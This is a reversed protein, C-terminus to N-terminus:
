KTRALRINQLFADGPKLTRSDDGPASFVAGNLIAKAKVLGDLEVNRNNRRVEYSITFYDCGPEAGKLKEMTVGLQDNASSRAGKKEEVEGLSSAKREDLSSIQDGLAEVQDHLNQEAEEFSKIAAQEAARTQALDKSIDDKIMQMIALIGKSENTGGAYSHEWTPPPASPAQGAPVQLMLGADKYFNDLVAAADSLTQVAKEDDAEELAFFAAEKKRIEEAKVIEEEVSIKEKTKLEIEAVMEQIDSELANIRDTIEDMSRSTELAARTDTLRDSECAEKHQLETTEESKLTAIMMDIANVVADFNGTAALKALGVLRADKASRAATLLVTSAFAARESRTSRGAQLFSYGQSKFSRKFMDRADDNHLISIAKAIAAVEGARMTSRTDWESRKTALSSSVEQMYSSDDAIQQELAAVEAAAEERRLGGVGTEKDLKALASEADAKQQQKTRQLAEFLSAAKDEKDSAEELNDHFTQLLKSLVAQIKFSRAKYSKKFDAKRNLKKWNWTPIDVGGTLVRRLFVADGKSLFREGLDAARLLSDSEQARAAFGGGSGVSSKMALLTGDEHGVTATELVQLASTLAVIADQMEAKADLFDDREKSRMSTATEIDAITQALEKGLDQRETTFEVRGADIDNIYGNLMNVRIQAAENSARKSDITTKGWCVYAKFLSEETEGQSEIKSSVAKLLEVIRTIPSLKSASGHGNVDAIAGVAAAVVVVVQLQM